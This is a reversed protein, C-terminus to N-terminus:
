MATSQAAAVPKTVVTGGAYAAVARLTEAGRNVCRHPVSGPVRAVEAARVTRAQREGLFFTAEGDVVAIVEATPHSHWPQEDGPALEVLMVSVRAGHEEGAFVGDALASRDRVRLYTGTAQLEDEVAQSDFWAETASPIGHAKLADLAGHDDPHRAVADLVLDPGIGLRAMATHDVPCGFTYTGSTGALHARAKDFMRPLHAYGDLEASFDRPAEVRLDKASASV